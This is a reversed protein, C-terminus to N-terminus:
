APAGSAFELSRAEGMMRSVQELIQSRYDSDTAVPRFADGRLLCPKWLGDVGVRLGYIGEGCRARHRCGDCFGSHLRGRAINKVTITSGDVRYRSRHGGLSARTDVFRAGRALLQSEIWAPDVWDGGYFGDAEHPRVLAIAKLDLRNGVCFDLVEVFSGQNYPGLSYNLEVRYGHKSLLVIDRMLREVSKGHLLSRFLKPSTTHLSALIGDIAEVRPATLLRRASVANTNLVVKCSGKIAGIAEFLEFFRPHTLPEGGTVNLQKGGLAVFASIIGLLVADSTSESHAGNAPYEPPATGRRPNAMGENHCFFCDLNCRDTIAVRFKGGMEVFRRFRELREDSPMGHARSQLAVAMTM